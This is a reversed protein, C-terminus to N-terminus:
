TEKGTLHHCTFNHIITNLKTMYKSGIGEYTRHNMILFWQQIVLAMKNEKHISDTAAAGLVSEGDQSQGMRRVYLQQEQSLM